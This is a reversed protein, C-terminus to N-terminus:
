KIKNLQITRVTRASEKKDTILGSISDHTLLLAPQEKSPKDYKTRIKLIEKCAKENYFLLDIIDQLEMNREHIPKQSFETKSM